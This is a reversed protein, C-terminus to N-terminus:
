FGVVITVASNRTRWAVVAALAGAVLEPSFFEVAADPRLLMPVALASLAAPPLLRLIQQLNEPMEALRHAQLLFSGRLAFTGLGAMAIVFWLGTTGLTM